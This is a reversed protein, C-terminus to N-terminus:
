AAKSTNPRYIIGVLVGALIAEVLGGGIWRVIMLPPYPAVTHLILNEPAFLIGILLGYRLGEITGKGEYGKTFIYCFIGAMLFQGMVAWPFLHRMNAENRWLGATQEYMAKMITGHFAFEFLFIFAFVVIWALFFRKNDM